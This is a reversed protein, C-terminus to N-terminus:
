AECDDDLHVPGVAESKDSGFVLLGGFRVDPIGPQCFPDHGERRLNFMGGNCMQVGTYPTVINNSCM